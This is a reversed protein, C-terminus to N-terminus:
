AAAGLVASINEPAFFQEYSVTGADLGFFLGAQEPDHELAAMLRAAEATPPLLRAREVTSEFAPRVLENRRQEYAALARDLTSRGSLGDVVSEALLEATRFADMMGQATIPDRNYAADGVLAWGPGYPRHFQNPLDNTGRFPEERRASRVRQGIEGLRDLESYFNPELNRRFEGFKEVPLAVTGMTLGFNTAEFVAFLGDRVYLEAGQVPLDSWYSYFNCTLRGRDDYVHPRVAGAVRSYKGDAGIVLRAREEFTGTRSTGRVGIVRDGDFVLESVSFGERVEAGAQSAADVLIKDLLFRRVSYSADGGPIAPPTGQVRFTGMDLTFTRTPPCGTAQVADLLGWRSLCAAAGHHLHHSSLTDSPFSARDLLLVRLGARALLLATPSGACRAGIVIADFM